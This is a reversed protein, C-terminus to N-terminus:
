KQERQEGEKEKESMYWYSDAGESEPGISEKDKWQGDDDRTTEVRKGTQM